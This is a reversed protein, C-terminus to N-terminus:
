YNCFDNLVVSDIFIGHKVTVMVFTCPQSLTILLGDTPLGWACLVLWCSSQFFLFPFRCSVFLSRADLGIFLCQGQEQLGGTGCWWIRPWWSLEGSTSFSFLLWKTSRPEAALLRLLTGIHLWLSANLGCWYLRCLYLVMFITWRTVGSRTCCVYYQWLDVIHSTVSLWVVLQIVPVM